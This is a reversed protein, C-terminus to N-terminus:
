GETLTDVLTNLYTSEGKDKIYVPRNRFTFVQNTAFSKDDDAVTLSVSVSSASDGAAIVTVTFASVGSCLPDTIKEATLSTKASSVPASAFYISGDTDNYRFAYVTDDDSFYVLGDEQKTIGSSCAMFYQQFQAMATQSKYQLNIQQNTRTFMNTGASLMMMVGFAVLSLLAFAVLLEGLSFGKNNKINQKLRNLKMIM